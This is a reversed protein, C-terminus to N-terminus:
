GDSSREWIDEDWSVQYRDSDKVNKLLVSRPSTSLKLCKPIFFEALDEAGVALLEEIDDENDIKIVLSLAM